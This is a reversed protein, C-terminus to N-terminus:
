LAIDQIVLFNFVANLGFSLLIYELLIFCLKNCGVLFATTPVGVAVNQRWSDVSVTVPENVSKSINNEDQSIIPM